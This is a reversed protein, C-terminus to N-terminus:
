EIFDDITQKASAFPQAGQIVATEGTEMDYIVSTPTANVGAAAAETAQAQVDELFTDNDMCEQVAASSVGSQGAIQSLQDVTVDPMAEFVADHFTWFADNGGLDAVCESAEAAPEALPHFSLPLHRYVFAMRDGYEEELGPLTDSYYSQCFPCEFDSYEVHVYRADEPGKWHDTEPDPKAIDLSTPATPGEPAAAEQSPQNGSPSGGELTNVRTWLHGLVFGLVLGVALTVMMNDQMLALVGSSENKSTKKAAM